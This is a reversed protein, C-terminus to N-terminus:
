IQDAQPGREAELHMVFRHSADKRRAQPQPELRQVDVSLGANERLRLAFELIASISGAEGSIVYHGSEPQDERVAILAVTQPLNQVLTEYLDIKAQLPGDGGGKIYQLLDQLEKIRADVGQIEGQLRKIEEYEKRREQLQTEIGQHQEQLRNEQHRMLLNHALLLVFLFSATAVPMLYISQRIRVAPPVADSIGIAQLGKGGLERMAAGAVTAFIPGEEAGAATLGSTRQLQVPEVGIPDLTRLFAVIRQDLAGTGTLAVPHPGPAQQFNFKLTNELDPSTRGDLHARIMETTINMTNIALILGGRLLAFSSFATGIELVGRDSEEHKYLLPVPFCAESPYVRTLKLGALRFREKAARYINQELVAVHVMVEELEELIRGPEARPKEVEVGTLSRHGPIGTYTEAEWKVAEALVHRRMKLVRERNMPLVVMRALPTVFVSRTNQKCNLRRRIEQLQTIGPLDGGAEPAKVAVFELIEQEGGRARVLAARVEDEVSEVGLCLAGPLPLRSLLRSFGLRGFKPFAIRPM